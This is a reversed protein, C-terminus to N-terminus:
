KTLSGLKPYLLIFVSFLTLAFAVQTTSNINEKFVLYAIFASFLPELLKGCSMWNINLFNMLYTFVAHGLFTPILITGLIGLWAQQPYGTLPTGKFLTLLLFLFGCVSYIGISFHWNNIQKRAKKSALVYASYFIASAFGSVEGMLNEPNLALTKSLLLYLALFASFYSVFLNPSLKEKFFFYAGVATFLPNTAFLIMCNAIKTNQASYFYSWLHFFFFMGTLFILKWHPRLSQFIRKRGDKYLFLILLISSAGLLRWSGLVEPPVASWKILNSAQSLSFISIFYLLYKLIM